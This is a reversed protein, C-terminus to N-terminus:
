FYGHMFCSYWSVKFHLTIPNFVMPVCMYVFHDPSLGCLILESILFFDYLPRLVEILIKRAVKMKMAM